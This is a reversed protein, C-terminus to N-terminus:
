CATALTSYSGFIFTVGFATASFSSQTGRNAGSVCGFFPRLGSYGELKRWDVGRPESISVVVWSPSGSPESRRRSCGGQVHSEVRGLGRSSTGGPLQASDVTSVRRCRARVGSSREGDSVSRQPVVRCRGADLAESGSRVGPPTRRVVQHNEASRSREPGGMPERTLLKRETRRCRSSTEPRDAPERPFRGSRTTDVRGEPESTSSADSGAQAAQEVGDDWRRRETDVLNMRDGVGHRTLGIPSIGVACLSLWRSCTIECMKDVTEGM